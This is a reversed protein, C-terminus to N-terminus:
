YILGLFLLIILNVWFFLKRQDAEVEFPVDRFWALLDGSGLYDVAQDILLHLTAALALGWGFLSNSSTVIWFTFVLFILQFRASHLLLDSKNIKVQSLVKLSDKTKRQDILGSIQKSEAAEPKVLYVYLIRDIDPLATGVVGGVWFELFRIDFWDRMVSVFLFFSVMYLFHLIFHKKM